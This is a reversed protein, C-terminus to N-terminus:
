LAAAHKKGPGAHAHPARCLPAQSIARRVMCAPLVGNFYSDCVIEAWFFSELTSIESFRGALAGM